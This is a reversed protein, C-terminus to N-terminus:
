QMDPKGISTLFPRHSCELNEKYNQIESQVEVFKQYRSFERFQHIDIGELLKLENEVAEEIKVLEFYHDQPLFSTLARLPEAGVLVEIEACLYSATTRNKGLFSEKLLMRMYNIKWSDWVPYFKATSVKVGKIGKLHPQIEQEEVRYEADVVDLGYM